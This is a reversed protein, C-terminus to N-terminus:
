VRAYRGEMEYDHVCLNWRVLMCVCRDDKGSSKLKQDIRSLAQQMGGKREDGDVEQAEQAEEEGDAGDKFLTASRQFEKGLRRAGAAGVGLEGEDGDGADGQLDLEAEMAHAAEVMQQEM